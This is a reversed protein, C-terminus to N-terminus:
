LQSLLPLVKTIAASQRNWDSGWRVTNEIEAFKISNEECWVKPTGTQGLAKWESEEWLRFHAEAAYVQCLEHSGSVLNSQIDGGCSHYNIFFQIGENRILGILAQTEPESGGSEGANVAVSETYNDGRSWVSQSKFDKTPFNKNLDVGRANFRGINGGGFYDPNSIGLEYGDPNILPVLYFSLDPYDCYHEGLFCALHKIFKVTGVENGHIGGSFLVKTTGTGLKYALISEDKITKGIILQEFLAPIDPAREYSDLYGRVARALTGLKSKLNQM